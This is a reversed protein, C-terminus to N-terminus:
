LTQGTWIGRMTKGYEFLEIAELVALGKKETVEKQKDGPLSFINLRGFLLLFESVM